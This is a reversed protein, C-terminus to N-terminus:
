PGCPMETRRQKRYASDISAQRRRHREQLQGFVAEYTVNARPLLVRLVEVV